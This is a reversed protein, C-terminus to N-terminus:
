ESDGLLRMREAAAELRERDMREWDEGLRTLRDALHLLDEAMAQVWIKGRIERWEKGDATRTFSTNTLDEEIQRVRRKVTQIEDRTQKMRELLLIEQGTLFHISEHDPGHKNPDPCLLSCFTCETETEPSPLEPSMVPNPLRDMNM